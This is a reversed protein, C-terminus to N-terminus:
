AAGRPRHSTRRARLRRRFRVLNWVMELSHRVVSLKSGPTERWDIPLEHIREQADLMALLLETDWVWRGDDPADLHRTLAEREFVKLGCQTDYVAYGFWLSVFTAFVRGLYHRLPSREVSRGLMRVRSGIVAAVGKERHAAALYALARHAEGVPVAGDADMFGLYDFGRALGADFGARIALGKGRNAELRMVDVVDGLGHRRVLEQEAEFQEQLSGDDVICFRVDLGATRAAGSKLYDEVGELLAQFRAAENYAPIVILARPGV